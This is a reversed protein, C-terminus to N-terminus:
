RIFRFVRVGHAPVMDSLVSNKAIMSLGSWLEVFSYQIGSAANVDKTCDQATENELSFSVEKAEESLNFLAIYRPAKGYKAVTWIATTDDFQQLSPILFPPLMDLIAQNTLLSLTQADLSPLHAGIMLPSGFLCWLTMMTKQEDLTFRSKRLEGFGKAL